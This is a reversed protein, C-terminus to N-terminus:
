ALDRGPCPDAEFEADRDLMWGSRLQGGVARSRSPCWTRSPSAPAGLFKIAFIFRRFPRPLLALGLLLLGQRLLSRVFEKCRTARADCACQRQIGQGCRSFQGTQHDSKRNGSPHHGEALVIIKFEGASAGAEVKTTFDPTSSTVELNKITVGKGAKACLRRQSPNKM